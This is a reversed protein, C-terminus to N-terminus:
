DLTETYKAFVEAGTMNETENAFCYYDPKEETFIQLKFSFQGDDDFLGVPMVYQQNRKLRYFLHTGCQKCFGREAWDSSSFTIINEEGEFQVDTGCDLALLPGGGWKRCMNCHCAGIGKTLTNVTFHVEGCLCHGKGRIVESM